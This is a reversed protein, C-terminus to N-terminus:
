KEQKNFVISGNEDIYEYVGYPAGQKILAFSKNDELYNLFTVNESLYSFLVRFLNVSTNLKEDFHPADEPWKIALASTFVSYILDRDTQKIETELSYNLGIFGGHDAVIVILSNSDKEKIIKVIEKLSQNAKELDKLYDEREKKVGKSVNKQVSIHSPRMLGIFYFNNTSTNELISQKLESIIEKKIEFGRALFSIEKFKINCYDYSVTPRNVLLYPRELLLFSKYDNKKFISVVPNNGVIVERANFLEKSNAKTNNYYHHKMSFMSSNSSLTSVYNSRYANYLKFKEKRLFNEFESNNYNYYGKKLESFNAYGDPQIIYVNPTKKFVVNEIDDPQEQWKASYTVAKYFDPFLQILVFFALMYQFVIIKNIHNKVITALFFSLLLPLVLLKNKFGYTSLIVFFTFTVLNLIPILYFVYKSKKDFKKIFTYTLTFLLVPIIIFCILFFVLQAWSNVLTFNTNYYYLLPYLGAAIAAIIPHQKKSNIFKIIHNRLKLM